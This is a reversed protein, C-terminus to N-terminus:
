VCYYVFIIEVLACMCVCVYVCVRMRACLYNYAIKVYVEKERCKEIKEIEGFDNKRQSIITMYLCCSVM